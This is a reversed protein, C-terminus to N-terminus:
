RSQGHIVARADGKMMTEELHHVKAFDRVEDRKKDNLTRDLKTEDELAGCILVLQKPACFWGYVRLKPPHLKWVGHKTPQVRRLDGAGPRDACRFDCLTQVLHEVLLRNGVKHAESMLEPKNDTWNYLEPSVYLPRQSPRTEWDPLAFPELVGKKIAQQITAMYTLVVCILLDHDIISVMKVAVETQACDHCCVVAALQCIM